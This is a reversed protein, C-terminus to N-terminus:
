APSPIPDVLWARLVAIGTGANRVSIALYVNGSEAIEV